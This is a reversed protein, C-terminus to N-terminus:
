LINGLLLAAEPYSSLGDTRAKLDTTNRSSSMGILRENCKTISALEAATKTGEVLAKVLGM